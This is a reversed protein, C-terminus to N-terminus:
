WQRWLLILMRNVIALAAFAVAAVPQDSQYLAFAALLFLGLSLLSGPMSTLRRPGKPAFYLAWVVIVVLPLGIALLWKMLANTTSQYGWYGFSAIMALELLFALAANVGKSIAM